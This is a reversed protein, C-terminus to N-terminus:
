LNNKFYNIKKIHQDALLEFEKENNNLFKKMGLESIEVERLYDDYYFRHKMDNQMKRLHVQFSLNEITQVYKNLDNIDVETNLLSQIKGPLETPNDIKIVSSLILFIVDAFVISPKNFFAAELCSTGGISITLSCNKLLDNNSVDPHILDVNPLQLIEEYRKQDRWGFIRQAPHEKVYLKYGTPISKAVNQIVSLQNTYFPAPLLLAREPECHLAFYIFKENKKIKKISVKNLFKYRSSRKFLLELENKLVNYRTRGTYFIYKRYNNNCVNLFFKLSAKFQIKKSTKFKKAQQRTQSSYGELYDRLEEFNKKKSEDYISEFKPDLRGAEETIMYQKGFRTPSLTLIKIGRGKCIDCLLQGHHYDVMKIILFDLKVEDLVKEFFKCEYELIELIEDHSFKHYKNYKFFVRESHALKWLNIKTTKEFKELYELDPRKNKLFVNDRYSWIKDFKLIKQKEFFSTLQESYDTIAFYQADYKEKLFKAIGFYLLNSDMWFLIKETM